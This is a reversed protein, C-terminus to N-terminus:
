KETVARGKMDEWDRDKRIELNRDLIASFLREQVNYTKCLQKINNTDKILCHGGFGRHGDPGPVAMHSGGIRPDLMTLTRVEEYDINMAKCLDYFENSLAVKTALFTNGFLKSMEAAASSAAILVCKGSKVREEDAALFYQLVVRADDYIGGVVVRNSNIMDNYANKETLFEPSFTIRLDHFKSRMIETFGPPLTSKICVVFSKTPRAIETSTNKIDCLVEEVVDTYCEGNARMPTPVCVFIVDSTKVVDVLTNFGQLFKDYAVVSIERKFFKAIASGVFGQGIVGVQARKKDFSQIFDTANIDISM